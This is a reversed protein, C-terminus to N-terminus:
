ARQIFIKVDMLVAPTDHTQQIKDWKKLVHSDSGKWRCRGGPVISEEKTRWKDSKEFKKLVCQVCHWLVGFKWSLYRQLDQKLFVIKHRDTQTIMPMEPM